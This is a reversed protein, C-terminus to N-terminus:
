RYNDFFGAERLERIMATRADETIPRVPRRPVGVDVGLEKLIGKLPAQLASTMYKKIITIFRITRWEEARAGEFDGAMYRNFISVSEKPLVNPFGGIGGDSGLVLSSLLMADHGMFVIRDPLLDKFKRLIELNDDTYKMGAMNPLKMLDTLFDFSLGIGFAPMHYALFPLDTANSVAEYYDYIFDKHHKYYYPPVSSLGTAGAAKAHKALRVATDTDTAGVHVIVQCRGAVAKTVTETVLMREEESMAMGEGTSGCLYLGNLGSEIHFDVLESIASVKVSGDENFPTLFASMVGPKIGSKAGM